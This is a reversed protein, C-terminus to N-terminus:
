PLHNRPGQLVTDPHPPGVDEEVADAKLGDLIVERSPPGGYYPSRDRQRSRSRSNNRVGRENSSRSRSRSPYSSSRYDERDRDRHSQRLGERLVPSRDRRYHSHQPEDDRALGRGKDSRTSAGKIQIEDRDHLNSYRDELM